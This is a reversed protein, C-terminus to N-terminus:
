AAKRRSPSLHEGARMVGIVEGHVAFYGSGVPHLKDGIKQHFAPLAFFPVSPSLHHEAHYPMNWFLAKFIAGARTTRTNRRLDPGEECGSHETVRIWRMVPEGLVRPLLWYFFPATSGLAVATLAIAGYLALM